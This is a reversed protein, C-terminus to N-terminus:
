PARDTRSITVPADTDAAAFHGVVLDTRHRVPRGAHLHRSRLTTKKLAHWSWFMGGAGEPLVIADPSRAARAHFSDLPLFSVAIVDKKGDGDSDGAVARHAVSAPRHPPPGDCAKGQNELWQVGHHPKFLYPRDLM